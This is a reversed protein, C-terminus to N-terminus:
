VRSFVTASRTSLELKGDYGKKAYVNELLIREGMLLSGATEAHQRWAAVRIVGTEDKLDFTCVQLKEGKGTTVERTVAVCAVEGQVTIIGSLESLEAIRSTQVNQVSTVMTCASTDVHIEISGNSATKVRGCIVQMEANERLVQQLEVAKENWAVVGIEGTEDALVFHLVTGETQDQRIFTSVSSVQKARGSINVTKQAATVERIKVAFKSISVPYDEVNAYKPNLEVHSRSSLHLEANGNRDEKTYGHEFRSIQGIKLKGNEVIDAQENWLVIRLVGNKDTVTASAFKGPKAGEFTKVPSVGIVRATVTADNLGSVIHDISLKHDQMANASAIEVGFEKAIMRLLTEEAIFNGTKEKTASLRALIEERHVNSNQTLIQQIIDEPIM